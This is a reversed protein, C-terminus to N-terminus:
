AHRVGTQNLVEKVEALLQAVTFPKPFVKFRQLTLRDALRDDNLLGAVMLVRMTPCKAHLYKAAELGPLDAVYPHIILLDPTCENLVDVAKGMDGTALVTYGARELTEKLVSRVVPESSLALITANTTPLNTMYNLKRREPRTEWFTLNIIDLVLDKGSSRLTHV